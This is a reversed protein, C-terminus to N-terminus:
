EDSEVIVESLWANLRSPHIFVYDSAERYGDVALLKGQGSPLYSRYGLSALLGFIASPDSGHRALFHKNIECFISPRCRALAEMGGALVFYEHGETDCKIFDIRDLREASCFEDLRQTRITDRLADQGTSDGMHAVPLMPMWGDRMPIAIDATGTQHSLATEVVVVQRLRRLAVMAKLVRSATTVPEFCYVKGSRGVLCAAFGAFRGINAGVDLVTDGRRILCRRLIDKGRTRFPRCSHYLQDLFKFYRFYNERGIARVFWRKLM